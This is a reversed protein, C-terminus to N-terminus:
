QLLADLPQGGACSEDYESLDHGMRMSLVPVDGAAQLLTQEGVPVCGQSDGQEMGGILGSM